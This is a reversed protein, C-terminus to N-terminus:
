KVEAFYPSYNAEIDEIQLISTIDVKGASKNGFNSYISLIWCHRCM